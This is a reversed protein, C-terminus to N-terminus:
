FYSLNYMLGKADKTLAEIVLPMKGLLNFNALIVREKLFVRSKVYVILSCNRNKRIKTFYNSLTHTM